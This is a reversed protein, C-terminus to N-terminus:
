KVEFRRLAAGCVKCVIKLGPPVRMATNVGGPVTVLCRGGYEDPEGTEEFNNVIMSTVHDDELKPVRPGQAECYINHIIIKDFPQVYGQANDTM